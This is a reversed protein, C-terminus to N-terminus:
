VALAAKIRCHRYQKALQKPTLGDPSEEAAQNAEDTWYPNSESLDTLSRHAGTPPTYDSPRRRKPDPQGQDVEVTLGSGEITVRETM